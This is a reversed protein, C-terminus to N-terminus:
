NKINTRRLSGLISHIKVRLLVHPVTILIIDNSCCNEESTHGAAHKQRTMLHAELSERAGLGRKGM